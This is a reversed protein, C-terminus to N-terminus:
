SYVGLLSGNGTPVAASTSLAINRLQYTTYSANAQAYTAGTFTGGSKPMAANALDYASKVASPTAALETSASDVGSYLKTVGYVSTSAAPINAVGSTAISTGNASVGTITGSSISSIKENTYAKAEVLATDASGKADYKEDHNHYSDSKSDLQTQVNSEVGSLKDLRSNLESATYPLKYETAM